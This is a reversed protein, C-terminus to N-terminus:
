TVDPIDFIFSVRENYDPLSFFVEIKESTKKAVVVEYGMTKKDPHLNAVHLTESEKNFYKELYQTYTDISSQAPVDDIYTTVERATVSHVEDSNNKVVFRVGVLVVDDDEAVTIAKIDTATIILDGEYTKNLETIKQSSFADTDSSSESFPLRIVFVLVITLVM